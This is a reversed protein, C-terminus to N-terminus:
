NRSYVPPAVTVNAGLQRNRYSSTTFHCRFRHLTNAADPDTTLTAVRGQQDSPYQASCNKVRREAKRLIGTQQQTKIEPNQEPNTQTTKTTQNICDRLLQGYRILHRAIVSMPSTGLLQGTTSGGIMSRTWALISEISM